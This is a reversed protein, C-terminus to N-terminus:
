ESNAMEGAMSFKIQKQPLSESGDHKVWLLVAIMLTSLALGIGSEGYVYARYPSPNTLNNLFVLIYFNHSAHLLIAPWISGSKDRLWSMIFSISITMLSFCSLVYWLPPGDHYSSIILPYHWVSWILGTILAANFGNYRRHLRPYLFGRWGIEEGTAATIHQLQVLTFFVLYSCDFGTNFGAFGFIWIALYVPVAYLLPLLYGALLYQPKRLGFGLSKTSKDFVLSTIIAAIGPGWMMPIITWQPAKGSIILADLGWSIGFALLLFLAIQRNM